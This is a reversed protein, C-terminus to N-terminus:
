VRPLTTPSLFLPIRDGAYTQASPPKINTNLEGTPWVCVCVRVLDIVGICVLESATRASQGTVAARLPKVLENIHCVVM